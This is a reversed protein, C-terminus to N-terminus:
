SEDQNFAASECSAEAPASEALKEHNSALM